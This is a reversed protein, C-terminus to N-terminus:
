AARGTRDARRARSQVASATGQGPTRLEFGLRFMYASAALAGGGLIGDFLASVTWGGAFAQLYLVVASGLLVLAGTFAVLSLSPIQSERM